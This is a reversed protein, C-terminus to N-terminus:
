RRCQKVVDQWDLEFSPRSPEPDKPSVPFFLIAVHPGAIADLAGEIKLNCSIVLTVRTFVRAFIAM